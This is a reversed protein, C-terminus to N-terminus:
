LAAALDALQDTGRGRDETIGMQEHAARDAETRRRYLKDRSVPIDRAIVLDRADNM